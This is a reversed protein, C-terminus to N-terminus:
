RSAAISEPKSMPKNSTCGHCAFVASRSPRSAIPIQKTIWPSPLSPRTPGPFMCPNTSYRCLRPTGIAGTCARMAISESIM